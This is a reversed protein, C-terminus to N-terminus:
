PIAAVPTLCWLVDMDIRCHRIQFTKEFILKSMIGTIAGIKSTGQNLHSICLSEGVRRFVYALSSIVRLM